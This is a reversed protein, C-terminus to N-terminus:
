PEEMAQTVLLDFTIEMYTFLWVRIPNCHSFVTTLPM